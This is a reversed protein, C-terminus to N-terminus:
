QFDEVADRFDDRGLLTDIDGGRQRYDAGLKRGDGIELAVKWGETERQGGADAFRPEHAGEDCPKTLSGATTVRLFKLGAPMVGSAM